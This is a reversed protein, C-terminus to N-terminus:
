LSCILKKFTTIFAHTKCIGHTEIWQLHQEKYAYGDKTTTAGDKALLLRQTNAGSHTSDKTVAWPGEVAEKSEPTVLCSLSMQFMKWGLRSDVSKEM